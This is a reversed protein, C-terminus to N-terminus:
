GGGFWEPHEERLKRVDEASLKKRAPVAVVPVVSLGIVGDGVSLGIVPRENKSAEMELARVLEREAEVVAAYVGFTRAYELRSRAEQVTTM